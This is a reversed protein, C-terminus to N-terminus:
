FKPPPPVTGIPKVTGGQNYNKIARKPLDGLKKATNVSGKPLSKKYNQTFFLAAEENPFEIVNENKLANMLDGRILKGDVVQLEPYAYHKGDVEGTSMLHTSISGDDNKIYQFNPGLMRKVFPVDKNKLLVDGVGGGQQFGYFGQTPTFLERNPRTGQTNQFNLGMFGALLAANKEDGQLNPDIDIELGTGQFGEITSGLPGLLQSIDFQMGQSGQSPEGNPLFDVGTVDAVVDSAVQAGKVATNGLFQNFNKFQKNVWDGFGHEDVQAVRYPRKCKSKSLKTM